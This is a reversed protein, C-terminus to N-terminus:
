RAACEDPRLRDGTRAVECSKLSFKVAFPCGSGLIDHRLERVKFSPGGSHFHPKLVKECVDDLGSGLTKRMLTMPTMRKIWRGRKTGPDAQADECIKHVLEVPDLGEAVKIFAVPMLFFTMLPEDLPM